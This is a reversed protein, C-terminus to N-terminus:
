MYCLLYLRGRGLYCLFNNSHFYCKYTVKDCAEALKSTSYVQKWMWWMYLQTWAVRVTGRANYSHQVLGPSVRHLQAQTPQARSVTGASHAARCVRESCELTIEADWGLEPSVLLPPYKSFSMKLSKDLEPWRGMMQAICSLYFITSIMVCFKIQYYVSSQTGMDQPGLLRCDVICYHLDPRALPWRSFNYKMYFLLDTMHSSYKYTNLIDVTGCTKFLHFELLWIDSLPQKTNLVFPLIDKIVEYLSWQHRKKVLQTIFCCFHQIKYIKLFCGIEPTRYM